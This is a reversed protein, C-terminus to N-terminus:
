QVDATHCDVIKGPPSVGPGWELSRLADGTAGHIFITFNASLFVLMDNYM